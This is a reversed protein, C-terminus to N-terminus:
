FTFRAIFQGFRPTGFQGNTRLNGFTGFGSTYRGDSTINYTPNTFNLGPGQPNPLFRRNFVNQFEVRVQLTFRQEPGFRFNRALNMAESPRRAGRFFPLIQTQPAWIGDPVAEWANPNLVITKEPDFCHCNIDLPEPHVKGDLDTWNVAWPSMYSGDPNKKLQAGGPGRGLWRSVPNAAGHAPRGLYGATQYFLAGSIAWGGIAYSVARNGLVPIREAPRPLEYTFSVRLVQPPNGNVIDKGNARNFVDFASLQQLNKAFTYNANVQLGNSYRKTLTIQLSDYWSRGLPASPSIGGSYQPFPRISQFVTQATSGTVPFSSYPLFVGRAALTARQATSLLNFRQNLLTADDLNGVTFGYRSLREVSVANFDFLGAAPLWVARNGVYSAEIVLNRTIERQLSFNWQYIREPRGANPDVLPAPAAIVAGNIHGLAPDYVPWQPQVSAPIGDRLKFADEGAQPTPVTASNQATGSVTGISGYTVGFGGRVVTRDNLTYAVGLRPGVGYPYNNAFHCGCTAEYILAGPHGGASPNPETLSLNAVRGYDEATYTGFDWRLGYDITLNRRLRWTDQLYMGWQQKSRRFIIPTSLTLTRVSGMLFNAYGFGVNANGQFGSVNLLSPQWSLGNQNWGGYVGNANSLTRTTLMDQRFDAGYKINHNGRIWTLSVTGSPRREPLESQATVGMANMGGLAPTTTVSSEFRPFNRHLLAGRLGIEKVANYNTTLVSNSFDFTSWGSGIHLQMTPRITYDFNLRYTPSKEYTGLNATIPEPLGEALGGLAQVPSRTNNDTWSFSLRGRSGLNQDIKVAPSRTIRSTEFPNYYNNILVGADHNPGKPLPIYKSQIAVAVPDFLSTPIQNGPFPDRVNLLTGNAGCDGSIATNCVVQRTTRPDFVSGLAITRGLPDVYDHAPRANAGTTAAMRLNTNGSAAFLGSYNGDRYAQTPVTPINTFTRQLQKDRYQEWNFFFFTRNGGDYLKPIRVPGGVNLIYDHRRVRNKTHTGSDESNLVENVAYDALTGHYSNTGSKLTVNFLAGSVSGFEAAFNSTQVAVEEIADPSPQTRTTITPAGLQGLVEGDLRYQNTTTPLGNVRPSFAVGQSVVGPLTLALQFPDRIFTGPFMIPLDKLQAPTINHTLAGSETKLLSAEATVTVSESTAGVEMTIDLRLSQAASLTMGGRRFTKFGEREVTVEYLGVPLQQIAYNGTSSTTGVMTAGTDVHRAVVSVDPMVAGTPDTVVGTLTARATQGFSPAAVLCAIGLGSLWSIKM